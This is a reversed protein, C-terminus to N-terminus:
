LLIKWVGSALAAQFHRRADGPGRAFAFFVESPIKPGVPILKFPFHREMRLPLPPHVEHNLCVFLNTHPWCVTTLPSPYYVTEGHFDFADDGAFTPTMLAKRGELLVKLLVRLYHQRAVRQQTERRALDLLAESDLADVPVEASAAHLVCRFDSSQSSMSTVLEPPYRPWSRVLEYALGYSANLAADEEVEHAHICRAPMASRRSTGAIGDALRTGFLADHIIAVAKM